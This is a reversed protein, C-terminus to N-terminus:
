TTIRNKIFLRMVPWNKRIYKYAWRPIHGSKIIFDDGDVKLIIAMKYFLGETFTDTLGNELDTIYASSIGCMNAFEELSINLEERRNKIYKGFKM